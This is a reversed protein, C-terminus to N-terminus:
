NNILKDYQTGWSTESHISLKDYRTNRRLRFTDLYLVLTKYIRFEIKVGTIDVERYLGARAPDSSTVNSCRVGTVRCWVDVM